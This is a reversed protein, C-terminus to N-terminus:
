APTTPSPSPSPDPNKPTDGLLQVLRRSAAVGAKQRSRARPNDGVWLRIQADLITMRGPQPRLAKLSEVLAPWDHDQYFLDSEWPSMLERRYNHKRLFELRSRASKTNGLKVYCRLLSVSINLDDPTLTRAEELLEVSRELYLRMSEESSLGLFVLEHYLESLRVLQVSSRQGTQLEGEIKKIGVELGAMIKNFHTQALLRVQEDSDQIAKQLVPIARRVDVHRLALIANRRTQSDRGRLIEPVSKPSHIVEEFSEHMTLAERTGIVYHREPDEIVKQDLVRRFTAISIQGLLPVPICFGTLLAVFTSRSKGYSQPLWQWFAIGATLLAAGHLCATALAQHSPWFGMGLLEQLAFADLVLSAIFSSIALARKWM